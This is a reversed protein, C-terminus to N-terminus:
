SGSSFGTGGREGLGRLEVWSGACSSACPGACFGVGFGREVADPDLAAGLVGALFGARVELAAEEAAAFRAAAAGFDRPAAASGVSVPDAGFVVRAGRAAPEVDAAAFGAAFFGLADRVVFGAVGRVVAAEFAAAARAAALALGSAGTVSASVEDVSAAAGRALALAGRVLAGRVVVATERDEVLRVGGDRVGVGVRVVVRAVLAERVVLAARAVEAGLM